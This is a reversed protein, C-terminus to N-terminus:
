FLRTLLDIITQSSTSLDELASTGIIAIFAMLNWAMHMLMPTLLNKSKYYAFTLFFAGILYTPLSTLDSWLISWDPNAPEAFVAEVTAVMHILAFALTTLILGVIELKKGGKTFARFIGLRFIVEEFLPAAIVVFLFGLLPNQLIVENVADQNTSSSTVNLVQLILSYVFNAGYMMGFGIGFWKFTKKDKFEKFFPKLVKMFLLIFGLIVLLECIVQAIASAKTYALQLEIPCGYISEPGQACSFDMGSRILSAIMAGGVLSFLINMLLYGLCGFLAHLWGKYPTKIYGMKDRVDDNVSTTEFVSQYSPYEKEEKIIQNNCFPCVKAGDELKYGCKECYM